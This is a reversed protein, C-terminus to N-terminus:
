SWLLREFLAFKNIELRWSVQNFCYQATAYVGLYLVLLAAQSSLAFTFYATSCLLRMM